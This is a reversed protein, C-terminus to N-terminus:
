GNAIDERVLALMVKVCRHEEDKMTDFDIERAAQLLQIYARWAADSPDPLLASAIAARCNHELKTMGIVQLSANIEDHRKKRDAIRTPRETLTIDEAAEIRAYHASRKACYIAFKRLATDEVLDCKIAGWIRDRPKGGINPDTLADVVTGSWGAPVFTLPDRCPSFKDRITEPTMIKEHKKM